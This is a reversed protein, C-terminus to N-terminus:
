IGRGDELQSKLNMRIQEVKEIQIVKSGHVTILVQGDKLSDISRLILQMLEDRDESKRQTAPM